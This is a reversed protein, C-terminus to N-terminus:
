WSNHTMLFRRSSCDRCASLPVSASVFTADEGAHRVLSVKNAATLEVQQRKDLTRRAKDALSVRSQVRESCHAKDMASDSNYVLGDLYVSTDIDNM